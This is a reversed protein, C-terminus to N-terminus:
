HESTQRDVRGTRAHALPGFAARRDTMMVKCSGGICRIAAACRSRRYGEGAGDDQCARFKSQNPLLRM